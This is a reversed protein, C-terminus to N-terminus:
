AGSFKDTKIPKSLNQIRATDYLLGRLLDKTGRQLSAIGM